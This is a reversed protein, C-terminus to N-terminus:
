NKSELYLKFEREFLIELKDIINKASYGQMLHKTLLDSAEGLLQTHKLMPYTSKLRKIAAVVSEKEPRPIKVTEIAVSTVEPARSYLFEAFDYLTKQDQDRLLEFVDMLKKAIPKM